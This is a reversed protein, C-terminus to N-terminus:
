GPLSNGVTCDEEITDASTTVVSHCETPQMLQMTEVENGPSTPESAELPRDGPDRWLGDMHIRDQTRNQTRMRMLLYVTLPLLLNLIMSIMLLSMMNVPGKDHISKNDAEHKNTLANSGTVESQTVITTTTTTLSLARPTEKIPLLVTATEPPTTERLTRTTTSPTTTPPLARTTTSPTTTQPLARTTTSPTTTPPLARTTTSPTTTPPPARTTTSPTTIPPPARTTTSPTTIPPPARTTSPTTTPPPSTQDMSKLESYLSCVNDYNCGKYKIEQNIATAILCRLNYVSINQGSFGQCLEQDLESDNPFCDYFLSCLKEPDNGGENKFKRCGNELTCLLTNKASNAKVLPVLYSLNNIAMGKESLYDLCGEESLEILPLVLLFLSTFNRWSTM